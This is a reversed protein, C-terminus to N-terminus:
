GGTTVTFDDLDFLAGSGGKFVLYLTTTGAPAGSLAATVDRYASWGGTGPVTARGLLTGTPSGSRIELTGGSRGSSVRATLSSADSLAYPQFSIWDNHHVDGVRRGGHASTSDIIQVGRSGSHHEAQRHKPQLVHEDEGTLPTGGAGGSDTYRAHVLGFINADVDHEGDAPTDVTGSCGTVTPGAHGHADHGLAYTVEVRSCDIVADEADTVRVRYPVADGFSFPQGDAPLELTVTPATNGVSIHVSASGTLGGPDRVTL